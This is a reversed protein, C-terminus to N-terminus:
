ENNVSHGRVSMSPVVNPKTTTHYQGIQKSTIYKVVIHLSTALFTSTRTSKFSYDNLNLQVSEPWLPTAMIIAPKCPPQEDSLHDRTIAECGYYYLFQSSIHQHNATLSASVQADARRPGVCQPTYFQIAKLITTVFSIISFLSENGISHGRPRKNYSNVQQSM